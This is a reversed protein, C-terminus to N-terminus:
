DRDSLNSMTEKSLVLFAKQEQEDIIQRKVAFHRKIALEPTPAATVDNVEIVKGQAESYAWYTKLMDEINQFNCM